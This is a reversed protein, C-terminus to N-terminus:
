WTTQFTVGASCVGSIATVFAIEAMTMTPAMSAAARVYEKGFIIRKELSGTRLPRVTLIDFASKLFRPAWMYRSLTEPSLRGLNGRGTMENIGEAIATIKERSVDSPNKTHALMADFVDARLTNLFTAYLRNSLNLGPVWSVLNLRFRDEVRTFNGTGDDDVIGLKARQYLAYNPRGRMMEAQRASEKRSFARFMRVTAGMGMLPHSLVAYWGQRGLASVDFSALINRHADM